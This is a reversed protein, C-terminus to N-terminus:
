HSTVSLHNLAKRTAEDKAAQRVQRFVQRLHAIKADSPKERYAPDNLVELFKQWQQVGVKNMLGIMPKTGKLNRGEVKAHLIPWFSLLEKPNAHEAVELAEEPKLKMFMWQDPSYAGSRLINQEQGPSLTGDAVADALEPTVGPNTRQKRRLDRQFDRLAADRPSLAGQPNRASLFQNMLEQASSRTLAKPAPNLGLFQQAQEGLSGGERRLKDANRLSYPTMQELGYGIGPPLSVTKDTLPVRYTFGEPNTLFQRPDYFAQDPNRVQEGEFNRNHVWEGISGALPHVKGELTGWFDKFYHMVDKAYTPLTIREPNGNADLRGTRPAFYDLAEKPWEGTYLVNTMAGLTGVVVPLAMVYATRDTLEAPGGRLKKAVQVPADVIGGGIERLTGLNFGPRGVSMMLLDKATKHWFLNDYALLGMRNDVSDWAKAMEDRLVERPIGEPYREALKELNYRALDAFVGLKQYPVFREMILKSPAELVAGPVRVGAGFLNRQRFAKRMNEGISTMYLKETKARGGGAVMADVIEAIESGRSGPFAYEQFVRKGKLFNTVPASAVSVPNGTRVAQGFDGKSAMKFALALRSTAADVSTFMVHFASLGLQAMNMANGISQYGRYLAQGRLGPSLYNNLVRAAPEPAYWHGNEIRGTSKNMFQYRFM